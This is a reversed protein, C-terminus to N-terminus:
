KEYVVTGTTILIILIIGIIAIILGGLCVWKLSRNFIEYNKKMVIRLFNRVFWVLCPLIIGILILIISSLIYPNSFDASTPVTSAFLIQKIFDFSM